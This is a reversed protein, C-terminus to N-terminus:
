KELHEELSLSFWRPALRMGRVLVRLVEWYFCSLHQQETMAFYGVKKGGIILQCRMMNVYICVHLIFDFCGIM